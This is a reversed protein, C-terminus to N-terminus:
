ITPKVIPTNTRVRHTRATKKTTTSKKEVDDKRKLDKGNKDKADVIGNSSNQKMKIQNTQQTAKSGKTHIDAAFASTGSAILALAFMGSVLQRKYKM